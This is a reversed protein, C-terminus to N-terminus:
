DASAINRLMRFVGYWLLVAIATFALLAIGGAEFLSSSLNDVPKMALDANKAVVIHWPPVDKNTSNELPKLEQKVAILRTKDMPDYVETPSKRQDDSITGLFDKYSPINKPDSVAAAINNRWVLKGRGDVVWVLSGLEKPTDSDEANQSNEVGANKLWDALDKRVEIACTILGVVQRADDPSFLPQSVEVLWPKGDSTSQYVTSIHPATVPDFQKDYNAEDDALGLGNFYDRYAFNKGGSKISDDDKWPSRITWLKANVDYEECGAFSYARREANIIIGAGRNAFLKQEGGRRNVEKLWEAAPKRDTENWVFPPALSRHKYKEVASALAKRAPVSDPSAVQNKLFLAREQLRTELAEAAVKGLDAQGAVIEKMLSKRSADVTKIYFERAIIAVTIACVITAILGLQLIPRRKQRVKRARLAELIDSADDHRKSEETALCKDLIDRFNRDVDRALKDWEVDVKRLSDRYRKLHTETRRNQKGTSLEKQVVEWRPPMRDKSLMAFGIAGLAYVDWRKDAQDHGVDAQDPPMYGETGLAATQEEVLRSQGFDTILPHGQENILVNGPKLDCHVLATRPRNHAYSMAEVLKTFICIADKTPLPAPNDLVDKLSKEVYNMVYYPWEADNGCIALLQVFGNENLMELLHKTEDALNRKDRRPFFKIAVHQDPSADPSALWVSGFTGAKLPKILKYGPSPHQWGAKPGFDANAEIHKEIEAQIRRGSQLRASSYSGSGMSSASQAKGPWYNSPMGSESSQSTSDSVGEPIKPGFAMSPESASRRISSDSSPDKASASM